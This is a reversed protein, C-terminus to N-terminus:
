KRRAEKLMREYQIIVENWDYKEVGIRSEWNPFKDMVREIKEALGQIDDKQFYFEEDPVIQRHAPIDSLLPYCGAAITELVAMPCNEYQSATIYVAARQLFELQEKSNNDIWGYFKVCGSLGLKAALKELEARYPGDGLIDVKWGKMDVSAIAKLVTQINKSKQMRGMLLIKKEKEKGRCLSRYKEVDLGNPIYIYNGKNYERKMLSQLYVSPAIIGESQKVIKKWSPRLFRHMIRMYLKKNHGEVDSGHATIIYPIKYKKKIWRAVEGTPIVFHVHCVDYSHNLMHKKMFIRVALLYTYQEWPMCSSKKSRWCKLRYIKMGREEESAPLDRYGMTVVTVDHGMKHFQQSIDRSVPAAGGGLPPYEYNLVLIKM